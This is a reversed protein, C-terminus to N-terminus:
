EKVELEKGNYWATHGSDFLVFYPRSRKREMHSPAYGMVKGEGDGFGGANADPRPIRLNVRTNIKLIGM